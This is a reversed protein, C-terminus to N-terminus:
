IKELSTMIAFGISPAVVNSIAERIAAQLPCDHRPGPNMMVPHLGSKGMVSRQPTAASPAGQGNPVQQESNPVKCNRHSNHMSQSYELTKRACRQESHHRAICEVIPDVALRRATRLPM